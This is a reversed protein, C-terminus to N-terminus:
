LLLNRKRLNRSLNQTLGIQPKIFSSLLISTLALGFVSKIFVEPTNIVLYSGLISGVFAFLALLFGVKYHVLNNRKLRIFGGLNLGINGFANSSIAFTLPIGLATMTPITIFAAGGVLTGFVSSLMGIFFLILPEYM